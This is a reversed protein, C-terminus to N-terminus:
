KDDPNDYMLNQKMLRTKERRGSLKRERFDIGFKGGFDGGGESIHGGYKKTTKRGDVDTNKRQKRDVSLEMKRGDYIMKM